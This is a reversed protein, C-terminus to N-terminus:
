WVAQLYCKLDHAFLSTYIKAGKDWLHNEDRFYEPYDHYLGLSHYDWFPISNKSAVKKLVSYLDIDALTYAPSVVFILRINRENCLSIFKQLYCLKLSDCENPTEQKELKKPFFASQPMPNYGNDEKKQKNYFLGGINSVAKANYRYLHFIRYPWYTGADRFISDARENRGFYPAFFSITKFADKEKAYDSKMLELCIVKPTYQDLIHNLICYHAYICDSGDIGGNYVSMGLSDALISPVYHLNCRSAGLFLIDEHFDNVLYKIKPGSLDQTRQNIQWMLVGGLRDFIFVGLLIFILSIFLKKM